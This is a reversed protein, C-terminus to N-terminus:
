LWGLLAVPEPKAAEVADLAIALAIIPGIDQGDLRRGRRSARAVTRSQAASRCHRPAATRHPCMVM